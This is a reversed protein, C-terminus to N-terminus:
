DPDAGARDDQGADGEAAAAHDGGAGDDGAVHRRQGHDAANGGALDASAVLGGGVVVEVRPEGEKLLEAIISSVVSGAIARDGSSALRMPRLTAAIAPPWSTVHLMDSSHVSTTGRASPGDPMPMM